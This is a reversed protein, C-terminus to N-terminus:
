LYSRLPHESTDLIKHVAPTTDFLQVNITDNIGEDAILMDTQIHDLFTDYDNLQKKQEEFQQSSQLFMNEISKTARVVNDHQPIITPAVALMGEMTAIQTQYHEGAESHKFVSIQDILSARLSDATTTRDDDSSVPSSNVVSQALADPSTGRPHATDLGM